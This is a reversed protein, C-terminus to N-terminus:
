MSTKVLLEKDIPENESDSDRYDQIVSINDINMAGRCYDENEDEDQDQVEDGDTQSRDDVTKM